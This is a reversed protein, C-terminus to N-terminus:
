EKGKEEDKWISLAMLWQAAFYTSLNLARAIEFHERFRNFALVSDSVIFLVAGLFAFLASRKRTQGYRAWARWGMVLIVIVYAIVPLKMKGLYSELVSYILIGFLIFVIAAFFSSRIKMGKSFASIYFLHAILFSVLGAIFQDTPLMLFIDGAISFLLGGIVACTYFCINRRAALIATSLIFIMTLPKFIYIIYLPGLYEARIHIAASVLALLTLVRLM